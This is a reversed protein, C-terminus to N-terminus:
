KVLSDGEIGWVRNPKPGMDLELVGGNILQEHTFWPTKLEVGNM